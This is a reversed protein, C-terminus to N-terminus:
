CLFQIKTVRRKFASNWCIWTEPNSNSTFIIKKACFNIDGNKINLKMPYRDTLRLSLKRSFEYGEFDDFIVVDEGNYGQFFGNEYEVFVAGPNEDVAKRTKGSGPPGWYIEVETEWNREKILMKQYKEFSRNYVVWQSFHQDAIEEMPVKKKIKEQIAVLDTRQGPSPKNGLEFAVKEKKCYKENDQVTGKCIEVHRPKLKKIMSKLTKPNKCHLFIQWHQRNTTPCIEDGVLLYTLEEEFFSEWFERDREYDTVCFSRCRDM